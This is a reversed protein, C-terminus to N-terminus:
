KWINFDSHSEIENDIDDPLNYFFDFGTEKEVDDVSCVQDAMPQSSSDNEYIFGIAKPNGNLCLVVKFFAEPILIDGLKRHQTNRFIPGSVIFIEGYKNAWTRCKDELKKWGGNNKAL